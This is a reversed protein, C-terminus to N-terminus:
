NILQYYRIFIKQVDKNELRTVIGLFFKINKDSSFITDKMVNLLDFDEQNSMYKLLESLMEGRQHKFILEIPTNSHSDEKTLVEKNESTINTLIGKFYNVANRSVVKHAITFGFHNHYPRDFPSSLSPDFAKYVDFPIEIDPTFLLNFVQIRAKKMLTQNNSFRENLQNLFNKLFLSGKDNLSVKLFDSLFMERPRKDLVSQFKDLLDKLSNENSSLYKAYQLLMFEQSLQDSINSFSEPTLSQTYEALLRDANEKMLLENFTVVTFEDCHKFSM